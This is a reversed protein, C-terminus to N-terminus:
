HLNTNDGLESLLKLAQPVSGAKKSAKRQATLIPFLIAPELDFDPMAHLLDRERDSALHRLATGIARATTLTGSEELGWKNAVFLAAAVGFATISELKLALSENNPLPLCLSSALPANGVVGRRAVAVFARETENVHPTRDCANPIEVVNFSARLDARSAYQNPDPTLTPAGDFSNMLQKFRTELTIRSEGETSGFLLQELTILQTKGAIL